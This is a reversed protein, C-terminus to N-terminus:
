WAWRNTSGWLSTGWIWFADTTQPIGFGFECTWTRESADFEHTIQEVAYHQDITYTSGRRKVGVRWGLELPLVAAYLGTPWSDTVHRAAVNVKEVRSQPAKYLRLLNDATQQSAQYAADIVTVDYTRTGYDLQSTADDAIFDGWVPNTVTLTNRVLDVSHDFRLDTYPVEGASFLDGFVIQDSTYTPDTVLRNRDLFTVLGAASVFLRGQETFDVEHLADIATFTPDFNEDAVISSGIDIARQAAPWAVNTNDLIAAIRAGAGEIPRSATALGMNTFLTLADAATLDCVADHDGHEYSQEYREIYGDFIPYTVGDFTARVRIRKNPLLNGFYPGGTNLPDFRRDANGLKLDLTGASVLDLDSSRGRHVVGARAYATVDVWVPTTALPRTTFAIEIAFTPFGGTPSPPLSPTATTTVGEGYTAVAGYGTTGTPM